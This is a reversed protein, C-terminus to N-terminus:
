PKVAPEVAPLTALWCNTIGCRRALLSLHVLTEYSVTKDAHIILTLPARISNTAVRLQTALERESVKANGFYLINGADVAMAVTPKDPGPLNDAAPPQLPLGATPILAGLMLFILLLFFVAAFPAVDFHSRLIKAERPFKM